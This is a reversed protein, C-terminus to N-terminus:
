LDLSTQRMCSYNQFRPSTPNMKSEFVSKMFDAVTERGTQRNSTFLQACRCEGCDLKDVAEIVDRLKYGGGGHKKIMLTTDMPLTESLTDSALESLGTFRLHRHM